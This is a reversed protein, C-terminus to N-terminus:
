SLPQFTLPKFLSKFFNLSEPEIVLRVHLPWRRVTGESADSTKVLYLVFMFFLYSNPRTCTKNWIEQPINRGFILLMPHFRVFMDCCYFPHLQKLSQRCYCHYQRWLSNRVRLILEIFLGSGAFCYQESKLLLSKHQQGGVTTISQNYLIV